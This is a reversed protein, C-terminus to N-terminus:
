GCCPCLGVGLLPNTASRGVSQVKLPRGLAESAPEAKPSGAAGVSATRSAVGAPAGTVITFERQAVDTEIAITHPDLVRWQRSEEGDCRVTVAAADPLQGIRFVTAQGARTPDAPYTSVRLTATSGDNWARAIGLTPFDVGLVTPERYKTLNPERFLKAWAGPGGVEAMMMIASLQGRPWAEGTGFWWGFDAGAPGFSRPEFHEEAYLALRRATVEDGFENALIRGLAVFRPDATARIPKTPDNWGTRTAAGHYLVAAFAPDQPQLYLANAFGGTPGITQRHEILPDYYLTVWRLRGDELGFYSPRTDESWGLWVQHRDTGFITDALRLGLGAANLCFPWVKTNECHLGAPYRKWLEVMREALRDQTWAFRTAGVGAVEFSEHRRDEGTVYSRLTMTLHLWGKFFLNGVADIPDPQLGWPSIGNAVWGPVDYRGVLHKPLYTEIWENPYSGRRPDPGIQTLWDIAAWYTTHRRVLEDLIRGYVERWAPTLDAMLAVAYASESLDFRAFNMVPESSYRDWWPHPEGAESWDDPTTAKQWLFRLWGRARASLEPGTTM